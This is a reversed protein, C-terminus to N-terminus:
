NISKKLYGEVEKEIQDDKDGAAGAKRSAILCMTVKRDSRGWRFTTSVAKGHDANAELM